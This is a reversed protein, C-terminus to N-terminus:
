EEQAMTVSTSDHKIWFEEAFRGIHDARRNGLFM